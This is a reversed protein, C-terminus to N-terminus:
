VTFAPHKPANDSSKGSLLPAKRNLTFTGGAQKSERWGTQKGQEAQKGERWGAQRGREANKGAM